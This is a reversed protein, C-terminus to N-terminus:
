ESEATHDEAMIGKPVEEISYESKWDALERRAFGTQETRSKHFGTLIPGLHLSDRFAKQPRVGQQRLVHRIHRKAWTLEYLSSLIARLDDEPLDTPTGDELTKSPVPYFLGDPMEYLIIPKLVFEDLVNPRLKLTFHPPEPTDIWIVSLKQIQADDILIGSPGKIADCLLKAYNDLDALEPTELRKQQDLYLDWEALVEGFFLYWPNGLATHIQEVFARGKQANGYPVPAFNFEREFDGILPGGDPVDVRLSM